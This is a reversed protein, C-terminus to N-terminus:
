IKGVFRLIGKVWENQKEKDLSHRFQNKSIYIKFIFGNHNVKEACRLIQDNWTTTKGFLAFNNRVYVAMLSM